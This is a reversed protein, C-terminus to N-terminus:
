KRDQQDDFFDLWDEKPESPESTPPPKPPDPRPTATQPSKGGQGATLGTPQKKPAPTQVPTALEEEDDDLSLKEEIPKPHYTGPAATEKEKERPSFDETKPKGGFLKGGGQPKVGSTESALRQGRKPDELLGLYRMGVFWVAALGAAFVIGVLTGITVSYARFFLMMLVAVIATCAGSWILVDRPTAREDLNRELWQEAKTKPAERRQLNEEILDDFHTEMALHYGCKSCFKAKPALENRCSPCRAPTESESDDPNAPLDYNAEVPMALDDDEVEQPRRKTLSVLSLCKPCHVTQGQMHEAVRISSQCVPCATRIEAM